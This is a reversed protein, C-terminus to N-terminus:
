SGEYLIEWRSARKVMYVRKNIDGQYNNSSYKQRFRLVYINDEDKYKYPYAYMSIDTLKINQFTKSRAISRKRNQWTKINHNGSWFDEAYHSLYKEVDLSEWDKRWSELASMVENRENTWEAYDLWILKNAIIVPTEGPTIYSLIKELDINPLVVCGESDLPPRSYYESETGHLWIGYGTKGLKNDLENPYNVPFAGIGYKDPLKSDPLWSTVFYVGEPTRLDGKALKNGQLKGTSAYFDKVLLPPALTGQRAYVYLRHETKDVLIANKVNPALMLLQRPIKNTDIRDVFAKMRALAENKLNALALNEDPAISAILANNGIGAVPKLHMSLLDGRVLHALHFDPATEILKNIISLAEDAHGAKIYLLAKILTAEYDHPYQEVRTNLETVLKELDANAKNSNASSKGTLQMQYSSGSMATNVEAPQNRNAFAYSMVLTITTLAVILIRIKINALM